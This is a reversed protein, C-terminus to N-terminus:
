PEPPMIEDKEALAVAREICNELERVNGPWPFNMLIRLTDRSLKKQPVGYKKCFRTLFHYVLDPIDETRSRLTPLQINVVNLRYYLDERFRGERVEEELTKNTASILRIDVRKTKTGGVPKIEGKQIARLLKAQTYLSLDAIEDLFLTGKHAEEFLGIKSLYANTFAGKVHGFMESEMLTDPIASCNISIFPAKTRSSNYHIASAVLEKGTGSDGTILVNTDSPAVKEIIRYVKKMVHSQGIINHYQYEEQLRKRLSRNERSLDVQRFANRVTVRIENEIFPKTIYDFAGYRLAAVATEVSGYATMIVVLVDPDITKVKKLLEIGDMRSMQIDSIILDFRDEQFYEFATQGDDACVVDYGESELTNRLIERLIEEDDVVLITRNKEDDM